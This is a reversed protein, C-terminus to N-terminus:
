SKNEPLHALRIIEEEACKAAAIEDMADMIKEEYIDQKKLVKVVTVALIWLDVFVGYKKFLDVYQNDYLVKEEWCLENRGHIQALGTLGAKVEFRKRYKKNLTDFDGLEDIVCSRPGVFSMSGTIVQFLQPLEDISSDRLKRGVRTVRPDGQYNFLGTGIHEAGVVMTRFKLISFVKGGKTRRKQRFFVSGKSDKKIAAAVGIWLPLLLIVAIVACFFDFIRKIWLHIQYM